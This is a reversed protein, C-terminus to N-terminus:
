SSTLWPGVSGDLSYKRDYVSIVSIDQSSRVLYLRGQDRVLVSVCLVYRIRANKSQFPPPGIDLPLSLLFPISSISPALLWFPEIPSIQKLSEVMNHPPPNEADVLETALNLFAWRKPGAMEEVGLLDVSIRGLAVARKHRIREADDVNMRVHGEISGGGVFLSASLHLDISVRPHRHSPADLIDVSQPTRMFTRSPVRRTSEFSVPNLRAAIERVPSKSQGRNPITFGEGLPPPPDLFVKRLQSTSRKRSSSRPPVNAPPISYISSRDGPTSLSHPSERGRREKREPPPSEAGKIVSDKRKLSGNRRDSRGSRKSFNRRLSANRNPADALSPETLERIDSLPRTATSWPPIGSTSWPPANTNRIPRGSHQGEVVKAYIHSPAPPPRPHIRQRDDLSIFQSMLQLLARSSYTLTCSRYQM